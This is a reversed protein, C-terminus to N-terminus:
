IAMSREIKPLDFALFLLRWWAQRVAFCTVSDVGAPAVEPVRIDNLQVNGGM